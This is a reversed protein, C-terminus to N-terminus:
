YFDGGCRHDDGDGLGGQVQGSEPISPPAGQELVFAVIGEAIAEAIRDPGEASTLISRDAPHTIFGMEVLVAPVAAERLIFFEAPLVSNQNGPVVERLRALIHEALRKGEASHRPYFIIAGGLAESGAANVHLSVLWEGGFDGLLQVRAALDRRHRTRETATLHSLEIDQTRTLPARAGMGELKRTLSQGVRLVIDKELWPGRHCGPDIGGHGPDVVIVRGLLPLSQPSEPAQAPTRGLALILTLCLAALTLLRRPALTFAYLRPARM